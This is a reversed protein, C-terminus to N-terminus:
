KKLEHIRNQIAIREVATTAKNYREILQATEEANVSRKLVGMLTIKEERDLDEVMKDFLGM